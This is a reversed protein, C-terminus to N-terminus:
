EFIIYDLETMYIKEEGNQGSWNQPGGLRRSFPYWASM